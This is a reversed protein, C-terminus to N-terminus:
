KNFETTKAIRAYFKDVQSPRSAPAAGDFSEEEAVVSTAFIPKVKDDHTFKVPEQLDHHSLTHNQADYTVGLDNNPGYLSYYNKM